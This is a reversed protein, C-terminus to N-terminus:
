MSSCPLGPDPCVFGPEIAFCHAACGDGNVNNGDDCVEPAELVGNGCQSCAQGPVPCNFGPEVFTCDSSCGDASTINGDDCVENPQV